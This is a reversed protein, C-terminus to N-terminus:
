YEIGYQEVREREARLRYISAKTRTWEKRVLERVVTVGALKDCNARIERSVRRFDQYLSKMEDGIEEIRQERSAKEQYEREREAWYEAMSDALRACDEKDDTMSYFDVAACDRNNPDNVAPVYQPRGDRAPLQYVEGHVTEDQFEDTYWGKHDLRVIEDSQGIHRLGKSVNEVWRYRDRSGEPTWEPNFEIERVLKYGYHSYKRHVYEALKGTELSAIYRHAEKLSDFRPSDALGKVFFKRKHDIVEYDTDYPSRFREPLQSVAYPKTNM